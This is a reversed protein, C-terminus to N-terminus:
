PEVGVSKGDIVTAAITKGSALNRVRIRDGSWGTQLAKGPATIVCANNEYVITVERGVEIDPVPEIAAVTLITGQRVNTTTRNGALSEVTTVPQERLSTIDMMQKDFQNATVPDHRDIDGKAVLVEAYHNVRLRVQGREVRQDGDQITVMMTFPGRPERQSLPKVEVDDPNLHRTKLSNHVIEITTREPNLEYTTSVWDRIFDETDVAEVKASILVWLLAIVIHRAIRTM